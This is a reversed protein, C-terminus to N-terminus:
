ADEELALVDHALPRGALLAAVHAAARERAAAEVAVGGRAIPDLWALSREQLHGRPRLYAALHAHSAHERKWRRRSKKVLGAELRGLRWDVRALTARVFEPLSADFARAMTGLGALAGRSPARRAALQRALEAPGGAGFFVALAAAPDRV